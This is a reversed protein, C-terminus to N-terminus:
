SFYEQECAPCLIHDNCDGPHSDHVKNCNSCKFLALATNNIMLYPCEDMIEKAICKGFIPIDDFINNIIIDFALDLGADNTSIAEYTSDWLNHNVLNLFFGHLREISNYAITNAWEYNANKTILNLARTVVDTLEIQQYTTLGGYAKITPLIIRQDLGHKIISLAEKVTNDWEKSTNYVTQPTEFLSLREKLEIIMETKDQIDKDYLIKSCVILKEM